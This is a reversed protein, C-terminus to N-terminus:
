NNSPILSLIHYRNLGDLLIVWSIRAISKGVNGTHVAFGLGFGQGMAPTPGIDGFRRLM